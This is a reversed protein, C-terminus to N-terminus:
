CRDPSATSLSATAWHCHRIVAWGEVLVGKAPARLRGVAQSWGQSVDDAQLEQGNIVVDPAALGHHSVARKEAGNRRSGRALRLGSRAAGRDRRGRWPASRSRCGLGSMRGGPALWGGARELWSRIPWGAPARHDQPQSRHDIWAMSSLCRGRRRLFSWRARPSGSLDVAAGAIAMAQGQAGGGPM